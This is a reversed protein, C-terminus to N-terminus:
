SFASVIILILLALMFLVCGVYFIIMLYDLFTLPGSLDYDPEEEIIYDPLIEGFKRMYKM